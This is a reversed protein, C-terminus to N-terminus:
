LFAAVISLVGVVIEVFFGVAEEDIDNNNKENRKKEDDHYIEDSYHTIEKQPKEVNHLQNYENETLYNQEVISDTKLTEQEKIDSSKYYFVNQSFISASFFIFLLPLFIKIPKM